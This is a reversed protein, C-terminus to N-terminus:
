NYWKKPQPPDIIDDISRNIRPTQSGVCFSNRKGDKYSVRSQSSFFFKLKFVFCNANFLDLYLIENIELLTVYSMSFFRSCCEIFEIKM